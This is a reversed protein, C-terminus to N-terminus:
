SYMRLLRNIGESPEADSSDLYEANEPELFLTYAREMPDSDEVDSMHEPEPLGEVVTELLLTITDTRNMGLAEAYEDISDAVKPPVRASINKKVM